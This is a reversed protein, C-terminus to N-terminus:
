LENFANHITLKIISQSTVKKASRMLSDINKSVVVGMWVSKAIEKSYKTINFETPNRSCALLLMVYTDTIDIIHMKLEISLSTVLVGLATAEDDSIFTKGDILNQRTAKTYDVISDLIDTPFKRIEEYLREKDLGIEKSQIGKQVEDILKKKEAKLKVLEDTNGGKKLINNIEENWKWGIHYVDFLNNEMIWGQWYALYGQLRIAAYKQKQAQLM